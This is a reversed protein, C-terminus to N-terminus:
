RKVWEIQEPMTIAIRAGDRGSPDLATVLGRVRITKGDLKAPGFGAAEIAARSKDDIVVAFDRRLDTGFNLYTRTGSRGVSVVRGEVIAYSGQEGALGHDVAAFPKLAAERWLGREAARARAELDLHGRACADGDPVVKALGEGVLTAALSVRDVVRVLHGVTRGHRDTGRRALSFEWDSALAALRARATESLEGLDLDRGRGALPPRPGVIGALRVVRGDGLRVTDAGLAAAIRVPEPEIAGLCRPDARVPEAGASDLVCCLVGFCLLVIACGLLRRRARGLAAVPRVGALGAGRRYGPESM